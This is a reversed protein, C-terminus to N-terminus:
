AVAVPQGDRISQAEAEVIAVARAADAATGREPQRGAAICEIFYRIEHEYGMGKPLDIPQAKGEHYLTLPESASLDFVVTAQEFNVTYQMNFPFGDAMAWGGEATVGPADPVDYRYDTFVHDVRDTVKAYGRSSVAAPPGFCWQVFDTDHIHLDLIAGGCADGDRYFAGGPHPSVRRLHAARVPGYTGADIAQKLWDWGPWFRMCMAPMVIQEPHQAAAEVLRQADEATRALPKEILVHKGAEMAALAFDLHLPTPLCIDVAEVNPDAILEYGDAYQAASSLDVGGQAQGEINGSASAKGSRLDPNPDAVAAVRAQPLTAYADLHTAGMMGLGIVGVNIPSTSESM